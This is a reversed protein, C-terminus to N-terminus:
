YMDVKGRLGAAEWEEPLKRSPLRNSFERTDKKIEWFAQAMTSPM